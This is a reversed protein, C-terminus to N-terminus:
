STAKKTTKLQHRRQERNPRYTDAQANQINRAARLTGDIDLQRTIGIANIRAQMPNVGYPKSM